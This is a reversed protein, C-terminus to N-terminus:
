DHADEQQDADDQQLLALAAAEGLREAADAGLREAHLGRADVLERRDDARDEEREADRQGQELRRGRVRRRELVRSRERAEALVPRDRRRRRRGAVVLRRRRRRRLSSAVPCEVRLWPSRTSDASTRRRRSSVCASSFPWKRSADPFCLSLYKWHARTSAEGARAES